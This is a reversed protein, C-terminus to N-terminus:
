VRPGARRVEESAGDAYRAFNERFLGALRRATRTYAEHDAWTNRPVLIETPVPCSPHVYANKPDRTQPQGLSGCTVNQLSWVYALGSGQATIDFLTSSLSDEFTNKFSVFVPGGPAPSALPIGGSAARVSGPGGAIAALAVVLVACAAVRIARGM